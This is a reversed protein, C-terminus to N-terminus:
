LRTLSATARLAAVRRRRQVVLYAAAGAVLPPLVLLPVFPAEPLDGGNPSASPVFAVGRFAENTAATALTTPTGSMTAGAGANDVVQYLTGNSGSSATAYLTAKGAVVSGTLGLVNAVAISGESVWTGGSLSYKEIAGATNDAYYLTDPGTGAGLTLLVFQYAEASSSVGPLDTITQGATTPLASGVTAVTIGSSTSKTPDADAYLQGNFINLQRLNTDTTNLETSTTSGLTTYRVGSAGGTVWINTGDSSTASRFNNGSAADTLATTTNVTANGDVTAVVRPVSSSSSSSVGSAGAAADYGTAILFRGDASLTLLGESTATGSAVLPHSPTTATTPLAISQVLTGTPGYEDLFVATGASTLAATGAGVRYVVIDGPTFPSSAFAPAAAAVAVTTALAVTGLVVRLHPRAIRAM